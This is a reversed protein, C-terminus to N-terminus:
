SPSPTAWAREITAVAGRVEGALRARDAAAEALVLVFGIATAAVVMSGTATVFHAITFPHHGPLAERLELERGLTAALASFADVAITDPLASAIVMGDPAVLVAGRVGAGAGLRGLVARVNRGDATPGTSV